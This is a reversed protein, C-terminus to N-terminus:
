NDNLIFYLSLSIFYLFFSFFRKKTEPLSICTLAGLVFLTSYITLIVWNPSGSDLLVGGIPSSIIGAFTAFLGTVGFATSRLTTPFLEPTFIYVIAWAQVIFFYIFMSFITVTEKNKAFAFLMSSTACGLLAIFLSFRRGIRDILFNALFLGPIEALGM